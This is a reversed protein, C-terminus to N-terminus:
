STTSLVLALPLYGLPQKPQTKWKLDPLKKQYLLLAHHWSLGHGYNFVRGLALKLKGM